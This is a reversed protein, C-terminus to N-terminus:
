GIDRDLCPGLHYVDSPVVLLVYGGEPIAQFRQGCSLGQTRRCVM